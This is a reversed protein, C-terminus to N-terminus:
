RRIPLTKTRISQNSPDEFAVMIRRGTEPVTWRTAIMRRWNKTKEKQYMFVVGISEGPPKKYRLTEIAGPKIVVVNGKGLLGQIPASSFNAFKITGMPFDDDSLPFIRTAYTIKGDEEKGALIVFAEKWQQKTRASGIVPYVTKGEANVEPDGHIEIIGTDGDYVVDMMATTNAGLLEVEKFSESGTRVFISAPYKPLAFGFFGVKKTPLTEAAGLLTLGFLLLVPWIFQYRM